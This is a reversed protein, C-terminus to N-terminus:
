KFIPENIEYSLKYFTDFYQKFLDTSFEYTEDAPRPTESLVKQYLIDTQEMMKDWASILQAQEPVSDDLTHIFADYESRKEMTLKLNNVTFEIDMDDGVANTGSEVYHYIDCFGDNWLDGTAWKAVDTLKISSEKDKEKSSAESSVSIASSSDTKKKKTGSSEDDSGCSTLLASAALLAILQRKM